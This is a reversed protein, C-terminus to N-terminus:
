KKFSEMWSMMCTMVSRVWNSWTGLGMDPWTVDWGNKVGYWVGYGDPTVVVADSSLTITSLIIHSHSQRPKPNEVQSYCLIGETGTHTECYVRRRVICAHIWQSRRWVGGEKQLVFLKNRNSITCWCKWEESWGQTAHCLRIDISIFETKLTASEQGEFSGDM